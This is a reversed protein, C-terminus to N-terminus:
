QCTVSRSVTKSINATLPCFNLGFIRIQPDGLTGSWFPSILGPGIHVMMCFKVGIPEVAASIGTILCLFLLSWGIYGEM